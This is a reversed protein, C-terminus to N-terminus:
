DTLLKRLNNRFQFSIDKLIKNKSKSIYIMIEEIFEMRYEQKESALPEDSEILIKNIPIDDIIKRGNKSDLM